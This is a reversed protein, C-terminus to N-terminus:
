RQNGKKLQRSTISTMTNWFGEKLRLSREVRLAITFLVGMETLPMQTTDWLHRIQTLRRAFTANSNGRKSIFHELMDSWKFRLSSVKKASHAFWMRLITARINAQCCNLNWPSPNRVNQAHFIVTANWIFTWRKEQKLLNQAFKVRMFRLGKRTQWSDMQVKRVRFSTVQSTLTKIKKPLINNHTKWWMKWSAMGQRGKKAGKQYKRISTKWTYFFIRRWNWSLM